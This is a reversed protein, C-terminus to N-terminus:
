LFDSFASAYHCIECKYARGSVNGRAMEFCNLIGIVFKEGGIVPKVAYSSQVTEEGLARKERFIFEEVAEAGLLHLRVIREMPQTDARRVVCVVGEDAVAKAKAAINHTLLRDHKIWVVNIRELLDFLLGAMLGVVDELETEVVTDHCQLLLHVFTRLVLDIVHVECVNSGTALPVVSRPLTVDVLASAYGGVDAHMEVVHELPDEARDLLVDDM